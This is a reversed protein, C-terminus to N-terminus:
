HRAAAFYEPNVLTLNPLVWISTQVLFMNEQEQPALSSLLNILHCFIM